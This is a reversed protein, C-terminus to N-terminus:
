AAPRAQQSGIVDSYHGLLQDVLCSWTRGAVSPRAQSALARLREGDGALEAVAQRLMTGDGAPYLLGNDGHRVLDLPGGAAPAVVPVGSALAEQISQCFTENAGTHVFVDFSAAHASLEAGSRFGVFTATPVQEVLRGAAPGDGVIVTRVGSLGGLHGLLHVQKEAALRGIYGAVVEGQPAFRRRLLQSRHRPHFRDLDVGRGWIGVPGIGKARLSWAALTSPALTLDAQNHVRRLWNWTANSAFGLGYRAGFGALDTQYVAVAPVGLARAARVGAAGLVVPAALHVVDPDWGRLIDRVRRTPLGISLSQYFPLGVAPVREVPTRGYSAPGCGPAIVLTEVGRGDLQEVIRLVSNTVGNIEPLFCEAVIAVRVYVFTVSPHNRGLRWLPYKLRIRPWM